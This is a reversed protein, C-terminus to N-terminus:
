MTRLGDQPDGAAAPAEDGEFSVHNEFPVDIM